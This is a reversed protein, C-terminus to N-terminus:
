LKIYVITKTAPKQKLNVPLAKQWTSRVAEITGKAKIGNENLTALPNLQYKRKGKKNLSYFIWGGEKETEINDAMLNYKYQVQLFYFFLLEVTQNGHVVIPYITKNTITTKEPLIITLSKKHKTIAVQTRPPEKSFFWVDYSRNEFLV